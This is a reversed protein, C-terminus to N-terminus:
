SILTNSAQLILHLQLIDSYRYRLLVFRITIGEEKLQLVTDELCLISKYRNQFLHKHSRYRRNFIVAYGTLLKRIVTAIPTKTTFLLDRHDFV